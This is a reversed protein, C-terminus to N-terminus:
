TTGAIGLDRPAHDRIDEGIDEVRIDEVRDRGLAVVVLCAAPVWRPRGDGPFYVWAGETTGFRMRSAVIFRGVRGSVTHAVADGFNLHLIPSQGADTM